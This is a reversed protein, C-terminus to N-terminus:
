VRENWGERQPRPMTDPVQLPCNTLDQLVFWFRSNPHLQGVLCYLYKSTKSKCTSITSVEARETKMNSWVTSNSGLNVCRYSFSKTNESGTEPSIFSISCLLCNRIDARSSQQENTMCPFAKRMRGCIGPNFSYANNWTINNMLACHSTITKNSLCIVGWPFVSTVDGEM